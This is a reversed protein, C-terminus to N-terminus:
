PASVTGVRPRAPRTPPAPQHALRQEALARALADNRAGVERLAQQARELEAVLEAAPLELLPDPAAAPETPTETETGVPRCARHVLLGAGVLLLVDGVSLVNALPLGAPLAFVDGLWLLRPAALVGSNTFGPGSTLGAFTLAARSAPMEGGNVAIVVGNLVAGLALLPLGPLRANRVLFAFALAYSVLHLAVALPRPMGPAVDVVLVQLGLALPLLPASRVRLRALLRLDKGSLPVSLVLLLVVAGILV